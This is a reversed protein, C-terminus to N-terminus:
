IEISIIVKFCCFVREWSLSFPTSILIIINDKQIKALRSRHIILKRSYQGKLIKM